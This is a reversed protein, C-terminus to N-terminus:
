LSVSDLGCRGKTGICSKSALLRIVASRAGGGPHSWDLHRGREVIELGHGRRAQELEQLEAGAIEARDLRGLENCAHCQDAPWM